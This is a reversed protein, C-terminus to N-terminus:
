FQEYIRNERRPEDVCETGHRRVLEVGASRKWGDGVFYPKDPAGAKEAIFGIRASDASWMGTALSEGTAIKTKNSGDIDAVWM